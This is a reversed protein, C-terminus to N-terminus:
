KRGCLDDRIACRGRESACCYMIGVVAILAVYLAVAYAAIIFLAEVQDPEM